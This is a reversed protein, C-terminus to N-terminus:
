RRSTAKSKIRGGRRYRRMAGRIRRARHARRSPGRLCSMDPAKRVAVILEACYKPNSCVWPLTAVPLAASRTSSSPRRCRSRNSPDHEPRVRSRVWFFYVSYQSVDTALYQGSAAGVASNSYVGTRENCGWCCVHLLEAWPGVIALTCVHGQLEGHDARAERVEARM